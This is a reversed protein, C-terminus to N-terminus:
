LDFLDDEEAGLNIKLKFTQSYTGIRVEVEDVDQQLAIHDSTYRGEGEDNLNYGIKNYILRPVDLATVGKIRFKLVPNAGSVEKDTLYVTYETSKPQSSVIFIPVLVEEPTCGGHCGQGSPIKAALSEHRLACLTKSDDLVVYKDDQTLGGTQITALRGFHDSKIGGLNYGNLLQSLYSLGHDSIIAVKKGAHEHVIDDIAQEVIRMEEIIYQPYPTCRHAFNDLDGKKSLNDGSLKQLDTKNRETTTPLSARAVIVNNLHVNESEYKELRWKIYPIWDIGLGDIWYFVEIDRREALETRVTKFMNYWSYFSVTNENKMSIVAKVDDAYKNGVKAAKYADIYDLVWKKGTTSVGFSKDLYHCLSPYIGQLKNIAVRKEGVWKILLGKETDTLATIYRLTTDYGKNIAINELNTGLKREADETMKIRYKEAAKMVVSREEALDTPNEASFITLAAATVFDQNSYSMTEKLVQCLYGKGCYRKIYYTTLLWREFREAHEFWMKVFVEVDDLDFLDFYKNFFKDFSFNEYDINRALTEWNAADETRYTVNGFDLRLGKTLFEYANRCMTYNFANDPQAFHALAYISPSTCIIREKVNENRWMRLWTTLSSIESFEKEIGSVGYTSRTLIMKYSTEVELSSKQHWVICQSDDFYKAMKGMQGIMPVYIRQHQELGKISTEVGKIEKILTDFEVIDYFRVFESFPAIVCDDCENTCIYERIKDALESYTLMLDPKDPSIWNALEQMKSVSGTEVLKDVFTKSDAFNEFLVFRVPYRNLVSANAGSAEKDRCVEEILLDINEFDKNM